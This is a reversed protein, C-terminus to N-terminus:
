PILSESGTSPSLMRLMLRCVERKLYEAAECSRFGVEEFMALMLLELTLIRRDNRSKRRREGSGPKTEIALSEESPKMDFIGTSLTECRKM